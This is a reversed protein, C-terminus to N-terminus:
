YRWSTNPLVHIKFCLRVKLMGTLRIKSLQMYQRPLKKLDAKQEVWEEETDENKVGVNEQEEVNDATKGIVVTSTSKPQFSCEVNGCVSALVNQFTHHKANHVNYKIRECHPVYSAHIM